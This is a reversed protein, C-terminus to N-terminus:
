PRLEPPMEAERDLRQYTKLLAAKFDGLKMWEVHGDLFLVNTGEKGMVREYAIVNRADTSETQGAVYVYSVAGEKDRPSNLMERTIMGEEILAELSDPFRGDHDNAHIYCGQGIGRLNSASVARKALERARSLSPLLISIALALAAVVVLPTNTSGIQAYHIGDEDAAGIGMSSHADKLAEALVPHLGPDIAIGPLSLM